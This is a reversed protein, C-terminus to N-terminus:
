QIISGSSTARLTRQNGDRSTIPPNIPPGTAPCSTGAMNDGTTVYMRSDIDNRQGGGTKERMPLNSFTVLVSTRTELGKLIRGNQINHPLRTSISSWSPHPSPVGQRSRNLTAARFSKWGVGRHKPGHLKGVSTPGQLPKMPGVAISNPQTPKLPLSPKLTIGLSTM